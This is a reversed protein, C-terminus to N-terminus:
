DWADARKIVRFEYEAAVMKRIIDGLNETGGELEYGWKGPDLFCKVMAEVFADIDTVPEMHETLKM